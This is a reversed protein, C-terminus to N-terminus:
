DGGAPKFGMAAEAAQVAAEVSDAVGREVIETATYRGGRGGTRKQVIWEHDTPGLAGSPGGGSAASIWVGPEAGVYGALLGPKLKRDRRFYAVHGKRTHYSGWGRRGANFPVRFAGAAVAELARRATMELLDRRVSGVEHRDISPLRLFSDAPYRDQEAYQKKVSAELGQENAAEALMREWTDPFAVELASITREAKAQNGAALAPDLRVEFYFGVNFYDSQSDSKDYNFAGAITEIDDVLKVWEASFASVREVRHVIEDTVKYYESRYSLAHAHLVGATSFVRIDPDRVTLTLEGTGRGGDKKITFKFAPLKVTVPGREDVRWPGTAGYQSDNYSSPPVTVGGPRQAAKVDSAILDSVPIASSDVLSRKGGLSAM